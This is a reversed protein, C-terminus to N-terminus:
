QKLRSLQLRELNKLAPPASPPMARPPACRLGPSLRTSLWLGRCPRRAARNNKIVFHFGAGRQPKNINSSRNGPNRQAEGRAAM